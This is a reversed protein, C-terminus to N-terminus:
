PTAPSGQCPDAAPQPQLGTGSGSSGLRHLPSFDVTLTPLGSSCYSLPRTARATHVGTPMEGHEALWNTAYDTIVHMYVGRRMAGHAHYGPGMKADAWKKAFAIIRRKQSSFKNRM